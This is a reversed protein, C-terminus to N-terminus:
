NAQNQSAAVSSQDEQSAAYAAFLASTFRAWNEDNLDFMMEIIQEMAAIGKRKM